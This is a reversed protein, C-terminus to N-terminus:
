TNQQKHIKNTHLFVYVVHKLNCGLNHDHVVLKNKLLKRFKAKVNPSTAM